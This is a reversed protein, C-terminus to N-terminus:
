GIMELLKNLTRWNRTTAAVKLKKEFFNNNMKSRGYSLPSYFYIHREVLQTEEPSYNYTKLKEVLEPAPTEALFTYYLQKTEHTKYPNKDLVTKLYDPKVILVPVEFGYKELIKKHIAQELERIDTLESEFVINGSQIYTQLNNFNLEALHGRLDAMKIKKKGSVNIGRLLAIYTNM